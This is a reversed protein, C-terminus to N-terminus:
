GKVGIQEKAHRIAELQEAREEEPIEPLPKLEEVRKQAREREQGAREFYERWRENPGLFTSAQMVFETGIRGNRDCDRAYVKVATMLDASNIGERIRATWAKFALKKPNGGLRRPYASWFEEFDDSYYEKSDKSGKSDEIQAAPPGNTPRVQDTPPGDSTRDTTDHTPENSQYRKYNCLTLLAGIHAAPHARNLDVRELRQVLDLFRRVRGRSWSWRNALYRESAILQGPGLHIVEGDIIRTQNEWSATQILDEWAEWKSFERKENWFPDEAYAKRSIKIYGYQSAM